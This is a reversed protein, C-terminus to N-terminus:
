GPTILSKTPVGMNGLGRTLSIRSEQDKIQKIQAEKGMAIVQDLEKFLAELSEYVGHDIPIPFPFPQVRGDPTKVMISTHVVFRPHKPESDEGHVLTYEQVTDGKSTVYQQISYLGKTPANQSVPSQIELAM